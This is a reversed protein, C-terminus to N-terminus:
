IRAKDAVRMELAEADYDSLPATRAEPIIEADAGELIERYTMPEPVYGMPAGILEDPLVISPSDYMGRPERNDSPDSGLDPITDGIPPPDDLSAVPYDFGTFVTPGGALERRRQRDGFSETASQDDFSTTYDPGSRGRGARYAAFTSPPYDPGLVSPENRMIESSVPSEFIERVRDASLGADKYFRQQEALEAGTSYINDDVNFPTSLARDLDFSSPARPTPTPTPAYSGFPAAGIGGPGYAADQYLSDYDVIPAAAPAATTTTPRLKPRLSTKPATDINTTFTEGGFTFTGGDGGAKKRAAAFADGFSGREGSLPGSNMIADVERSGSFNSGAVTGGNKKVSGGKTVEYGADTLATRQASTMGKTGIRQRPAPTPTSGSGGGGGAFPNTVGSLPGGRFQPGSAGPGGGDFMDKLGTYKTGATNRATAARDRERQAVLDNIEPTFKGGSEKLQANIERQTKMENKSRGKSGEGGSGAEDGGGWVIQPRQWVSFM